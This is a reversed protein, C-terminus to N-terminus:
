AVENIPPLQELTGTRDSVLVKRGLKPVETINSAISRACAGPSKSSDTSASSLRKSTSAKFFAEPFLDCAPSSSPRLGDVGKSILEGLVVQVAIRRDGIRARFRWNQRRDIMRWWM